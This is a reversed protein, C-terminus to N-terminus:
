KNVKSGLFGGEQDSLFNKFLYGVGATLGIKLLYAVDLTSVDFGPTNFMSALYTFVAGGVAVIAGNIVDKTDLRFLKSM